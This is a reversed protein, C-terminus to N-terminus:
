GRWCPRGLFMSLITGLGRPAMARGATYVPYGALNQLYPALLASTSLMVSSVCFVMVMGSSFNRDRFLALSLFPKDVTFMHVVFLYFGLAAVIAEALIERSSFWDMEQGRDLMLQLSGCALAAPWITVGVVSLSSPALPAPSAPAAAATALAARAGNPTVIV